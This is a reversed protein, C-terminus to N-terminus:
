GDCGFMKRSEWRTEGDKGSSASLHPYVCHHAMQKEKARGAVRGDAEGTLEGGPFHGWFTVFCPKM